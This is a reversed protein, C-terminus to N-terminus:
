TVAALSACHVGLWQLLSLPLHSLFLCVYRLLWLLGETATRKKDGPLGENKVLLQLTGSLDPGTSLLRDRIKQARTLVLQEYTDSHLM